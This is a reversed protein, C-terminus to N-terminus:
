PRPCRIRKGPGLMKGRVTFVTQGANVVELGKNKGKCLIISSREFERLEVEGNTGLSVPKENLDFM